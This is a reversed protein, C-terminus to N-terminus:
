YTLGEPLRYARQSRRRLYTTLRQRVYGNIQRFAHRPYGKHFYNAWGRLHANIEAIMQMIPKFCHRPGTMERLKFRERALAKKSPGLNLYRRRRGKRDHDYRFAYGLFDLVAGEQRLNVVRTKSRNIELGFRGELTTEIWETIQPGVYRALVVFDDVYRVLKAGAWRAPGDGRHFLHDFWHLYLNALLPSAVGGRGGFASAANPVTGQRPRAPNGTRDM